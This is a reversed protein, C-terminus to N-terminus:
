NKIRKNKECEYKCEDLMLYLDGFGPLILRDLGTKNSKNFFKIHQDIFDDLIDEMKKKNSDDYYQCIMKDKWDSWYTSVNTANLANLQFDNQEISM